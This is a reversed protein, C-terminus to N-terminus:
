EWEEKHIYNFSEYRFEEVDENDSDEDSSDNYNVQVPYESEYEIANHLKVMDSKPYVFVM